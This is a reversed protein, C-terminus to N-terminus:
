IACRLLESFDYDFLIRKKTGPVVYWDADKLENINVSKKGENRMVELVKAPIFVTVDHDIFWIVYGAYVGSIKSKELLGEWQNNTIAGYKNKPNNTHISLTNGYCSKCEIYFQNPWHYAIFDCINRVGAFGAQPDILRDVSTDSVSELAIRVQEEFQKGRDVKSM